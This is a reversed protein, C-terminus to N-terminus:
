KPLIWKRISNQKGYDKDERMGVIAWAEEGIWDTFPDFSNTMDLNFAKMFNQIAYKTNFDQKKSQGEHPKYLNHSFDKVLPEDPVELTVRWYPIKQDNTEADRVSVIRVKAETGDDLVAPEPIDGLGWASPDIRNGTMPIVRGDKEVKFHAPSFDEEKSAEELLKNTAVKEERTQLDGRFNEEDTLRPKRTRQPM